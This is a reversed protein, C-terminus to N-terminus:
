QKRCVLTINMCDSIIEAFIDGGMLEMLRRCIYLGLGSGQQSGSNSGRWFSDFIHSLEADPLTCGSNSVTILRCNEEESFSISIMKGDGYKVANEIINQIVEELREPDGSILCDSYNEVTFATGTVSLKDSYYDYIRDIVRSLYFDGTHVEFNMFESSLNSMLEHVIKEIEDAKLDINDAAASRKESTEYMDRSIGKAYLKIASLPTKIDHSLSLLFTKENKAYELEKQKSHELEQRLMDLGWIFKGFYRSKQEKLPMVLNGKSLQEPLRSIENFPSLVKQRIYLLIILVIAAFVIMAINVILMIGSNKNQKNDSYEIRYLKGNIERILYENDSSYFGSEGKYEYIGTINGFEDASVSEGNLIGQEIRNVEVKYLPQSVENNRFMILDVACIVGIMLILVAAIIRDFSKM